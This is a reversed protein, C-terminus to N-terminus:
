VRALQCESKGPQHSEATCGTCHWDDQWLGRHISSRTTDGSSSVNDRAIAGHHVCDLVILVFYCLFAYFSFMQKKRKRMLHYEGEVSLMQAIIVSQPIFPFVILFIRHGGCIHATKVTSQQNLNVGQQLIHVFLLLNHLTWMRRFYLLAFTSKLM